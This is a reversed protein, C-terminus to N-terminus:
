GLAYASTLKNTLNQGVLAVQWRDNDAGLAIRADVKAFGPQYSAPNLNDDLFIGSRYSVTVNGTLKLRDGVPTDLDLGGSASWEPARPIRTGGINELCVGVPPVPRYLCLADPFDDYKADLYGLAGRFTLPRAVRATLELEVGR